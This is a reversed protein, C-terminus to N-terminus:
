VDMHTKTQLYHCTLPFLVSMHYVNLLQNQSEDESETYYLFNPNDIKVQVLFDRRPILSM